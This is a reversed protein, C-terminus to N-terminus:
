SRMSASLPVTQHSKWLQECLCYLALSAALLASLIALDSLLVALVECCSIEFAFCFLSCATTEKM